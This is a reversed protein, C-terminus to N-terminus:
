LCCFTDFHLKAPTFCPTGGLRLFVPKPSELIPHQPLYRPTLPLINISPPSFRMAISNMIEAEQGSMM